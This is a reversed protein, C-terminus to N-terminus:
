RQTLAGPWRSALMSTTAAAETVGMAVAIWLAPHWGGSLSAVIATLVLVIGTALGIVAGARRGIAMAWTAAGAVIGATVSVAGVLVVAVAAAGALEGTALSVATVFVGFLVMGVATVGLVVAAIAATVSDKNSMSRPHV